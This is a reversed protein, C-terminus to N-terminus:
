NTTNEKIRFKVIDQILEKPLPKDYPFQIAGKSTKYETLQDLFSAVGNAGPYFGVHKKAYAFHVLNGNLYFTPMAWSIKETTLPTVVEKIINYMETLKPQSKPPQQNIYDLIPNM